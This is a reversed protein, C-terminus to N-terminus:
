IHKYIKLCLILIRFLTNVYVLQIAPYLFLVRLSKIRGITPCFIFLASFRENFVILVVTAEFM